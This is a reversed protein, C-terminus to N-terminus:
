NEMRKTKMRNAFQKLGEPEKPQYFRVLCYSSVSPALFEGLKCLPKGTNKDLSNKRMTKGGRLTIILQSKYSLMLTM